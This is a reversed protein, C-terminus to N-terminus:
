MFICNAITQIGTEGKFQAGRKEQSKKGRLVKGRKVPTERTERSKTNKRPQGNTELGNDLRLSLSSRVATPSMRPELYNSRGCGSSTERRPAFLVPLSRSVLSAQCNGTRYTEETKREETKGYGPAVRAGVAHVSFLAALFTGTDFRVPRAAWQRRQTADRGQEQDEQRDTWRPRSSTDM